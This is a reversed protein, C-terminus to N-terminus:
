ADAGYPRMLTLNERFTCDHIYGPPITGEIRARVSLDDWDKYCNSNNIYRSDPKSAHRLPPNNLLRYHIARVTLSGKPYSNLVDIAANLMPYKAPSIAARRKAAGLDLTDIDGLRAQKQRYDILQQYAQEPNYYVVEERLIEDLSKVPQRNHERLLKVFMPDSSTITLLRCKVKKLGALKCAVRRRHGSIIVRDATVVIAELLGHERISRALARVEPDKATVPRYLKSNVTAPKLSELPLIRILGSERSAATERSDAAKSQPRPPIKVM